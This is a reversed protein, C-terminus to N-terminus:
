KKIEFTDVFSNKFGAYNQQRAASFENWGDILVVAPDTDLVQSAQERFFYANRTGTELPM